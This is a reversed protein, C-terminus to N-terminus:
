GLLDFYINEHSFTRKITMSLVAPSNPPVQVILFHPLGPCRGKLDLAVDEGETFATGEQAEVATAMLREVADTLM